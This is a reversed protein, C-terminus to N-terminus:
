LRLTVDIELLVGKIDFSEHFPFGQWPGGRCSVGENGEAACVPPSHQSCRWDCLMKWVLSRLSRIANAKGKQVAKMQMLSILRARGLIFFFLYKGGGCVHHMAFRGYRWRVCPMVNHLCRSRFEAEWMWNLYLLKKLKVRFVVGRWINRYTKKICRSGRQQQCLLSSQQPCIPVLMSFSFFFFFCSFRVCGLHYTMGSLLRVMSLARAGEWRRVVQCMHSITMM